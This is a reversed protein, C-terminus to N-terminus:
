VKLRLVHVNIGHKEEKRFTKPDIEHAPIQPTLDEFREYILHLLDESLGMRRRHGYVFLPPPPHEPPAQQKKKKRGSGQKAVRSGSLEYVRLLTELFKDFHPEVGPRQYAIDVALVLDLRDTKTRELMDDFAEEVRGFNDKGWPLKLARARGKLHGM